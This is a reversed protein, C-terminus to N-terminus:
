EPPRVPQSWVRGDFYRMSGPNNPDPYWGAAPHIPPKPKTLRVVLVVVGGIVAAAAILLVLVVLVLGISTM